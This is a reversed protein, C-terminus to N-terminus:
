APPAGDALFCAASHTHSLAVAPPYSQACRPEALPCRTRFPCGSPPHLASPVEGPLVLRARRRAPDAVPVAALLARTYPHAPREFVEVATGLEVIRGLYMVAIRESVARVLTLDHAIFLYSLGRERRLERLLELIRAQVAVDLASVAEDLVLFRPELVLARAIAIRQREGGSFEHPYRRAADAALGVRELLGAVAREAEPARALRHARLPEGVADGICLRPNLSEFPDQFVIQLERRARRLERGSLKGLDLAPEAPGRRYLVRGASPEVLRLLARALTSKGCGSEGVLGLTEGRAISFSVGDVARVREERLFGARVPYHKALGQVEIRAPEPTNGTVATRSGRRLSLRVPARPRRALPARAGGARLARAGASLPRPLPLRLAQPRARLLELTYPHRPEEFLEVTGAVEVIRGAYMVAVRSACEAVIALDHSVLLLAMGRERQLERLLELIGAQVTVDLASTPEDALLLGPGAAIAMAILARQRQGGSLQHPYARARAEVDSLGVERLLELARARARGRSRGEHRRLVEAIQEGVTFVPNLASAPEQFVLGIERGRVAALERAGLARLDRGRFLIEGGVIRGPAPVLSLVALATLTKGSGSEGVLGLTEGSHLELEVGDLARFTGERTEFDVCLGRIQLLPETM